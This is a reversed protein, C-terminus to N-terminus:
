LQLEYALHFYCSLFNLRFIDRLFLFNGKCDKQKVFKMMSKSDKREYYSLACSELFDQELQEIEKSRVHVHEKWYEIYQFGTDFVEGKRCVSLCNSFQDGKAYAEAADSYCGALLFCEAAANIDGCKDM